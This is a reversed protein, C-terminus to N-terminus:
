VALLCYPLLLSIQIVSLEIWQIDNDLGAILSYLSLGAILSYLSLEFSVSIFIYLPTLQKKHSHVM